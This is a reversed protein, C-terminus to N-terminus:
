MFWQIRSERSTHFLSGSQLGVLGTASKKKEVFESKYVHISANDHQFINDNNADNEIHEM